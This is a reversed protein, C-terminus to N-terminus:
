QRQVLPAGQGRFGTVEPNESNDFAFDLGQVGYTVGWAYWQDACLPRYPPEM